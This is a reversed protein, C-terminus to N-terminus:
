PTAERHPSTKDPATAGRGPKPDPGWVFVTRAWTIEGHGVRSVAGAERRLDIGEDDAGALVGAIRRPGDFGPSTKIKVRAGVAGRFHDPTRLPRELGPSSVELTYRGPVPDEEDLKRSLARALRAIADVGIGGDADVLVRVVGGNYEVDYLAASEASVVPAALDRVKGAVDAFREAGAREAM